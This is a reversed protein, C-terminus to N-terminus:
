RKKVEKEQDEKEEQAEEKQEKEALVLLIKCLAFFFSFLFQTAYMVRPVLVSFCFFSCPAVKQLAYNKKKKQKKMGGPLSAVESYILQMEKTTCPAGRRAAYKSVGSGAQWMAQWVLRGTRRNTRGAQRSAAETQAGLRTLSPGLVACPCPSPISCLSTPTAWLTARGTAFCTESTSFTSQM